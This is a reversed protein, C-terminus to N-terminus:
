AREEMDSTRNKLWKKFALKDKKNMEAYEKAESLINLFNKRRTTLELMTGNKMNLILFKSM